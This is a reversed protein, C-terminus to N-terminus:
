PNQRSFILKLTGQNCTKSCELFVGSKYLIPKCTTVFYPCVKVALNSVTLACKKVDVAMNSFLGEWLLAAPGEGQPWPPLVTKFVVALAAFM